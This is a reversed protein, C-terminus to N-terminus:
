SHLQAQNMVVPKPLILQKVGADIYRLAQEYLLEPKLPMEVVQRARLDPTLQAFYGDYWEEFSRFLLCDPRRRGLVSAAFGGRTLHPDVIAVAQWPYGPKAYKPGIYNNGYRGYGVITTQFRAAVQEDPPLPGGSEVTLMDSVVDSTRRLRQVLVSILRQRYHPFRELFALFDDRQIALLTSPSVAWGTATRPQDDLVAIEGLMDGRQFREVFVEGDQSPMLIQITGDLVIFLQDGPSGSALLQEGAAVARRKGAALLFAAEDDRLSDFLPTQARLQSLLLRDSDM